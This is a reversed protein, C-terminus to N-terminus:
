TERGGVGASLLTVALTNLSVGEAEARHALRAHLSRPVRLRFQGSFGRHVLPEPVARGEAELVAVAADLATDLQASAEAPTAGLASLADFEPCVAVFAGDEVSWFVGRSFRSV